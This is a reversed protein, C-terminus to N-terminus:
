SRDRLDYLKTKLIFDNLRKEWENLQYMFINTDEDYIKGSPKIPIEEKVEVVKGSDTVAMEKFYKKVPRPSLLEKVAGSEIAEIINNLSHKTIFGETNSIRESHKTEPKDEERLILELYALANWARHAAHLLGFDPDIEEGMQEKLYHRECASNYRNKGDPVELWGNRSYKKAGATGVKSVEMLARAFNGLVLNVDPKDQDLKAGPEHQNM